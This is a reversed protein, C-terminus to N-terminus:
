RGGQNVLVVEHGLARLERELRRERTARWSSQGGVVVLSGPALLRQVCERSDRSVCIEIRVYSEAALGPLMALIQRRVHDPDIMPQDLPVRHPVPLAAIISLSASLGRALKSAAKLAAETGEVSTFIVNLHLASGPAWNRLLRRRAAGLKESDLM